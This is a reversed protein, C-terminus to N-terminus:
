LEAALQYLLGLFIALGMILLVWWALPKSQV